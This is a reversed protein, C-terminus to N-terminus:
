SHFKSIFQKFLNAKRLIKFVDFSSLKSLILIIWVNFTQFVPTRLLGSIAQSWNCHALWSGFSEHLVFSENRTWWIWIQIGWWQLVIFVDYLCIKSSCLNVYCVNRSNQGYFLFFLLGYLLLTHKVQVQVVCFMNVKFRARCGHLPIDQRTKTVIM